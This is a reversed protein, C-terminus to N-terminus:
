KIANKTFSISLRTNREEIPNNWHEMVGLSQLTTGDGEPDYKTGSPANDALAAEVLYADAYDMDPADPFESVLFDLAVADIAVPDQSALLSCPWDGNFPKMQWKPRPLGDVYKCGYLGDILYLMTKGGIDQHGMYDVFTIYRPRGQKDQNMNVHANKRWDKNINTVGYWNKGCLTVGQGVHGKLLAMNNIYDAETCVTSLGTCMNGSERSYHIADVKYKTKRRGEEGVNDVYNVKPFEAFCKLYVGNTLYRSADFVTICKQPVKADTVLSRLLALVMHPSANIEGSEDYNYTNNMNTKIAIRQGKRYGGSRQHTINFHVFLAEWAENANKEGTLSTLANCVLWEAAEQDNWQDDYWNGSGEGPWQTAGPAHTWAVRGAHIGKPTGIPDNAGKMMKVQAHAFLSCFLFVLTTIRKM